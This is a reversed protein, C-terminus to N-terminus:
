SSLSPLLQAVVAEFTMEDFPRLDDANRDDRGSRHRAADVRPRQRAAELGKAEGSRQLLNYMVLPRDVWPLTHNHFANLRGFTARMKGAKLL